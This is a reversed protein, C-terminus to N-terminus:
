NKPKVRKEYRKWDIKTLLYIGYILLLQLAIGFPSTLNEKILDGVNTSKLSSAGAVYISYSVLRGSFFALTLPLLRMGILGAAEFLQASPLPSLAFLALGIIHSRTRKNLVESAAVLNEQTHASLHPRLAGTARGLCYRGSGAALAGLGVLLVPHLDFNLEFLVLVTWTPPAFAPAINFAFVLLVLYLYEISLADM